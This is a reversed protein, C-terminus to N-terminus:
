ICDGAACYSDCFALCGESCKLGKREEPWRAQALLGTDVRTLRSVGLQIDEDYFKEGKLSYSSWLNERQGDRHTRESFLHTWAVMAHLGKNGGRNTSTSCKRPYSIAKAFQTFQEKAAQVLRASFNVVRATFNVKILGHVCGIDLRIIIFKKAKKM